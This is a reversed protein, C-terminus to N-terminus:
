CSHLAAGVLSGCSLNLLWLRFGMPSGLEKDEPPYNLSTAKRRARCGQLIFSWNEVKNGKCMEMPIKQVEWILSKHKPDTQKESFGFLSLTM